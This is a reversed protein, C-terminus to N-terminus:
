APTRHAAAAALAAGLSRTNAGVESWGAALGIPTGPVLVQWNEGAAAASIRRSV